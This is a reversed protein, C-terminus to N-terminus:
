LILHLLEKRVEELLIGLKNGQGGWYNDYPSNEMLKANGTSLLVDRCHKDTKFKCLLIYKMVYYKVNENYNELTFNWDDRAKIGKIVYLDIISNLEQNWYYRNNKTQNALLKAKYPTSATRIIEIYEQNIAPANPYIYKCTHYLHESTPYPKGDFIIPQTLPYFNSLEGWPKDAGFFKIVDSM